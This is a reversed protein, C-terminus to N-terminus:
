GSGSLSVATGGARGAPRGGSQLSQITTSETKLPTPDPILLQQTAEVPGLIDVGGLLYHIYLFRILRYDSSTLLVSYVFPTITSLANRSYTQLNFIYALKANRFIITSHMSSLFSSGARMMEQLFSPLYTPYSQM